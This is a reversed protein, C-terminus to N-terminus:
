SHLVSKKMATFSFMASSCILEEASLNQADMTSKTSSGMQVPADFFNSSDTMVERVKPSPWYFKPWRVHSKNNCVIFPAQYVLQNSAPIGKTRNMFFCISKTSSSFLIKANVTVSPSRSLKYLFLPLHEQSTYNATLSPSHHPELDQLWVFAPLKLSRLM